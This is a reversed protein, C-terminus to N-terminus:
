YLSQFRINRKKDGQASILPLLGIFLNSKSKVACFFRAVENNLTRANQKDTDTSASLKTSALPTQGEADVM